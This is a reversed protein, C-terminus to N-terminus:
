ILADPDEILVATLKRTRGAPDTWTISQGQALGLLGAGVHSLPSILGQDIDAQDPLVIKVRRSRSSRDDIYHVWRDLGVTPTLRGSSHLTARALEQQLLGAAGEAPSEGILSSLLTHDKTTLHIAPLRPAKPGRHIVTM